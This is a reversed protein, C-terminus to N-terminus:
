KKLRVGQPKYLNKLEPYASILIEINLYPFFGLNEYICKLLYSNELKKEDFSDPVQKLVEILNSLSKRKGKTLNKAIKEVSENPKIFYFAKKALTTNISGLIGSIEHEKTEADISMKKIAVWEKYHGIFTIQNKEGEQKQPKLSSSFLEPSFISLRNKSLLTILFNAEAIPFLEKRGAADLILEKWESPKRSELFTIMDKLNEGKQTLDEIKKYNIGSYRFGAKEVQEKISCLAYLVDQESANDLSFNISCDWDKLNASFNVCDM